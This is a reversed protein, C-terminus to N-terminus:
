ILTVTFTVTGTYDGSPTDASIIDTGAPEEGDPDGTALGYYCRVIRSRGTTSRYIEYDSKPAAFVKTDYITEGSVLPGQIIDEDADFKDDAVYDPKLLLSTNLSDPGTGNLYFGSCTQTIQYDRGSTTAAMFVSFYKDAMLIGNEEDWQLEGFNLAEGVDMERSEPDYPEGDSPVEQVWYSLNLVEPVEAQVQLDFTPNDAALCVSGVGVVMLLTLIVMLQKMMNVGKNKKM